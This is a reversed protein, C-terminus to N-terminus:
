RLRMVPKVSSLSNTRKNGASSRPTGGAASQLWSPLLKGAPAFIQLNGEDECKKDLFQASGLQLHANTLNIDGCTGTQGSSEHDGSEWCDKM